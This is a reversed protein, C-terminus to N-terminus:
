NKISNRRRGKTYWLFLSWDNKDSREKKLLELATEILHSKNRYRSNQKIESEIWKILKEEITASIAKKM